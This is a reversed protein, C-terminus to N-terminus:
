GPLDVEVYSRGAWGPVPIAPAAAGPEESGEAKGADPAPLADTEGAAIRDPDVMSDDETGFHLVDKPSPIGQVDSAVAAKREMPAAPADEPAPAPDAVPEPPALAVTMALRRTAGAGDGGGGLTRALDDLDRAAPDGPMTLGNEAYYARVLAEGAEADAFAWLGKRTGEMILAYVAKEIARSLAVFGPENTTIGVETELIRDFDVYSFSNAGLGASLITKQVVISSLVQGTKVSVARLNVSMTDQRYEAKGGIGLLRAGAGGTVTNSDFGVIGGSFILGAFRMPPLIDPDAATEGEYRARTEQIIKREQLLQSLDTREVVTFWGDNGADTLTKVLLPAGGQTVAKSLSQVGDSPKFQGTLDEFAYVAVDIKRAAPPLDMLAGRTRTIEPLTPEIGVPTGSCAPLALALAVALVRPRYAAGRM